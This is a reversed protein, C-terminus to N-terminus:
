LASLRAPEARFGPTQQRKPLLDRLDEAHEEEERLIHELMRRTTPDKEGFYRILENYIDIAVREAILNEKLMEELEECRIYETASRELLGEPNYNPEGNLQTIRAAIMDAHKQEDAAHEKFEAAVSESNLGEAMRYHLTYRMVCVIETALADNLLKLATERNAGYTSTVAGNEINQRARKKIEELNLEFDNM